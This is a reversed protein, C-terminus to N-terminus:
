KKTASDKIEKVVAVKKKIEDLKRLLESNEGKLRLLEYDLFEKKLNAVLLQSELYAREELYFVINELIFMLVEGILYFTIATLLLFALYSFPALFSPKLILERINKMLKKEM